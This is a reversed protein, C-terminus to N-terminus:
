KKTPQLYTISQTVGEVIEQIYVSSYRAVFPPDDIKVRIDGNATGNIWSLFFDSNQPPLRVVQTRFGGTSDTSAEGITVNGGGATEAYIKVRSYPAFGSGTVNLTDGPYAQNKDLTFKPDMLHFKASLTRAEKGSIGYVPIFNGKDNFNSPAAVLTVVHEGTEFNVPFGIVAGGNELNAKLFDNINANLFGIGPALSSSILKDLTMPDKMTWTGPPPVFVQGSPFSGSTAPEQYPVKTLAMDDLSISKWEAFPSLGNTGVMIGNFGPQDSLMVLDPDARGFGFPGNDVYLSADEPLILVETTLDLPGQPTGSKIFGTTVPFLAWNMARVGLNDLTNNWKLTASVQPEQDLTGVKQHGPSGSLCGEGEFCITAFSSSLPDGISISLPNNGNDKAFNSGTNGNLSATVTIDGAKFNARWVELGYNVMTWAPKSEGQADLKQQGRVLGLLYKGELTAGNIDFKGVTEIGLARDVTASFLVATLSTLVVLSVLKRLDMIM